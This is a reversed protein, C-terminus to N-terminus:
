IHMLKEIIKPELQLFHGKANCQHSVVRAELPLSKELLLLLKCTQSANRQIISLRWMLDAGDMELDCAHSAFRERM